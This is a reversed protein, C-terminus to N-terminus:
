TNSCCKKWSERELFASMAKTVVRDPSFSNAFLDWQSRVDEIRVFRNVYLNRDIVHVEWVRGIDVFCNNRPDFFDQVVIKCNTNCLRPSVLLSISFRKRCNVPQGVLPGRVPSHRTFHVHRSPPSPRGATRHWKGRHSLIKVKEKQLSTFLKMVWKLWNIKPECLLNLDAGVTRTDASCSLRPTLCSAEETQTSSTVVVENSIQTRSNCFKSPAWWLM